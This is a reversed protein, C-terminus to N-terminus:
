PIAFPKGERDIAGVFSSVGAGKGTEDGPNSPFNLLGSFLVHLNNGNIIDVSPGVGLQLQGTFWNALGVFDRFGVLTDTSMPEPGASGGIGVATSLCPGVGRFTFRQGIKCDLNHIELSLSGVCVFEGVTLSGNAFVEFVQGKTCRPRSPVPQDTDPVPQREIRILASRNRARGEQTSNDGVAEGATGPGFAGVNEPKAGKELLFEFTEFARGKRIGLNVEDSDVCDAFGSILTVKALPQSSDLRLLPILEKLMAAHNPRVTSRGPEFDWILADQSIDSNTPLNDVRGGSAAAAEREGPKYSCGASGFRSSGLPGPPTPPTSASGPGAAPAAGLRQEIAGNTGPGVIGDATLGNATQFSVVAARTLTGFAGDVALAPDAGLANLARQLAAVSPGSSGTRLLPPASGLLGPDVERQLDRKGGDSECPSTAACRSDCSRQGTTFAVANAAEDISHAESNTHVRFDSFDAYKARLKNEEEPMQRHVSQTPSTGVTGHHEQQMVTHTVRDAEQEFQDTPQSVTLRMQLRGAPSAGCGCLPRSGEDDPNTLIRDPNQQVVHTLEHALLERGKSSGPNYEGERFYIDQGATFAHASLAQNLADADANTHVRVASLDANLAKGMHAQTGRDLAQGVGRSGEIAREVDPMVSGYREGNMASTVVRQVYRNGYQRQLQFFSQGVGIPNAAASV